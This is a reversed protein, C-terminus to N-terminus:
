RGPELGSMRVGRVEKKDVNKKDKESVLPYYEHLHLIHQIIMNM